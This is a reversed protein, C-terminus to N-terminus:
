HVFCADNDGYQCEETHVRQNATHERLISKHIEDYDSAEAYAIEVLHEELSESFARRMNRPAYFVEAGMELLAADALTDTLNQFFGKEQIRVTESDPKSRLETKTLLGVGMELLAADAISDKINELLSRM